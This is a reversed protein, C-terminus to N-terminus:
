FPLEEVAFAETADADDPEHYELFMVDTARVKTADRELGSARDEWSHTCLRGEVRVLSGKSLYRGCLEALRGSVEVVTWKTEEEMEGCSEWTRTITAIRVLCVVGQALQKIEPDAAVHGILEVRNLSAVM